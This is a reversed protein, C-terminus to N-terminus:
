PNVALPLVDIRRFQTPHSEAQIAILGEGLALPAGGDLLRRADPDSEDLQTGSYEFVTAGNVSHRILQDGRVEVELAVWQDGHFTDSTSNVCHTTILEGRQRFHTGPTCVNATSREDTGNGGLLQVEISAPFEQELTMSEPTQSHLMMGNNRFAWAPGNVVQGSIFRYEVRLLYHSFMREHFLHGFENQFGTWNDYSVTLLGDEVRFTDLHNAGAPHGTFKATWGTLDRGNFLSIWQEEPTSEALALPSQSHSLARSIWQEEPTSEAAPSTDARGAVDAQGLAGAACLLLAPLSLGRGGSSWRNMRGMQVPRGRRAKRGRSERGRSFRRM